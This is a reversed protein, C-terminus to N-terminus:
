RLSDYFKLVSIYSEPKKKKVKIKEQKIFDKIQLKKDSLLNFFERKGSIRYYQGDKMLFLHDKQYFEDYKNEVALEKILKRNKLYLNTKGEYLVNVYGSLIQMSDAPLKIFRFIVNNFIIDFGTVMEKNLQVYTGLNVMSIIEDNYIDYKLDINNFTKGNITVNGKLFDNSFLFEDGRINYYLSRWVRGNYLSQIDQQPIQQQQVIQIKLDPSSCYVPIGSYFIGINSLLLLFYKFRVM